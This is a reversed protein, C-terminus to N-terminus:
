RWFQKAEQRTIGSMNVYRTRLLDASRHGMEMQLLPYNRFYKAHYSAFTHRLCDQQWTKDFGAAKRLRQWRRSWNPPCIAKNHDTEPRYRCLWRELVPPIHVHRAGGTKTHQPRLAIIKEEFDIDNWTLRTVEHPRIGAYLMLAVAPACARNHHRRIQSQLRKIEEPMLARIETEHLSPADTRGVPNEDCWGRKKSITFIGHLITRAKYKQRTSDFVTDFIEQCDATTITRVLRDGLGPIEKMLRTAIQRIEAVTRPRRHAKSKLTAEVAERFTVTREEQRMADAALRIARRCHSIPQDDSEPCEEMLERVIRAADILSIGIPALISQALIHDKTKQMTTTNLTLAHKCARRIM